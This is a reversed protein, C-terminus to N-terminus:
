SGDNENATLDDLLTGSAHDFQYYAVLGTETGNLTIHMNDKIETGSRAVNWVRLEDIQGPFFQTNSTGKGIVKASTNDAFTYTDTTLAQAVGNVYIAHNDGTGNRTYAIHTWESANIVDNGTQAVYTGLGTVAVRNTGGNGPGVELQFSNTTNNLRTSFIGHRSTLNTPKVWAEITLNNGVDFSTDNGVDVYDDLGDFELAYGPAAMSAAAINTVAPPAAQLKNSGFPFETVLQRAAAPGNLGFLVVATLVLGLTLPLFIRHLQNKM